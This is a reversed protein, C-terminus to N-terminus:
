KNESENSLNNNLRWTLATRESRYDFANEEHGDQRNYLKNTEEKCFPSFLKSSFNTAIELMNVPQIFAM